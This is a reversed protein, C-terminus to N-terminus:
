APGRGGGRRDKRARPDLVLRLLDVTLHSGAVIATVVVTIALLLLFDPQTAARYGMLGLGQIGLVMELVLIGGLLFAVKSAALRALPLAIHPALRGPLSLGRLRASHVFDLRRLARVESDLGLVVDTLTGDGIALITVAALTRGAGEPPVAFVVLALYGLLFVPLLSLAHLAGRTLRSLRGVGQPVGLAVALGVGLSMLMAGAVLPLSRASGRVVLDVIPIGRYSPGLDGGLLGTWFRLLWAPFSGEGLQGGPALWLLGGFVFSSAFVVAAFGLLRRVVLKVARM